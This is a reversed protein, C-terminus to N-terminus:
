DALLIQDRGATKAQYLAKDACAILTASNMGREYQALGISVSVQLQPTAIRQSISRVQQRFRELQQKAEDKTTQVFIFLFEEGGLRGLIDSQRFCQKAIAGFEALVSDGVQHGYVDNIQKFFDLDAVAVSVTQHYREALTLQQTLADIVRRRSYLGTLVDHNALRELKRTLQLKKRYGVFLLICILLALGAIVLAYRNRQETVLLQQEQEANQQQLRLNEIDKQAVDFETKLALLRESNQNKLFKEHALYSKLLRDYAAQYHTQGYLLESQLRDFEIQHAQMSDGTILQSARELYSEAEEWQEFHLSIRALGTLCGYQMFPNESQEFTGLANLFLAKAETFQGQLLYTQALEKQSYALGQADELTISLEASAKLYELGRTIEGTNRLARGLGYLSNSLNFRDNIQRYHNLSEEFYPIALQDEGRYEYVLALLSAIHGPSVNSQAQQAMVYARQFKDLAVDYKGLTLLLIGTTSTSAVQVYHHQNQEAWLEAAMSLPLGEEARGLLDLANAKALSLVHYVFPSQTVSVLALGQEAATLAESGLVLTYYAQALVYYAMPKHMTPQADSVVRQMEDIVAQPETALRAVLERTHADFETVPQQSSLTQSYVPLIGLLLLMLVCCFRFQIRYASM